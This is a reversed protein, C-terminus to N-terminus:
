RDNATGFLAAMCDPCLQGDDGSYWGPSRGLILDMPSYDPEDTRAKGCEMCIIENPDIM